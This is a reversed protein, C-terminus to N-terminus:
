ERFGANRITAVVLLIDSALVDGLGLEEAPRPDSLYQPRGWQEWATADPRSALLLARGHPNGAPLAFFLRIDSLFLPRQVPGTQSTLQVKNLTAGPWARQISEVTQALITRLSKNNTHPDLFQAAISTLPPLALATIPTILTLLILSTLLNILTPLRMPPNVARRTGHFAPNTQLLRPNGRATPRQM